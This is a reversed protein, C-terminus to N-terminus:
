GRLPGTGIGDEILLGRVLTQRERIVQGRKNREIGDALWEPEVLGCALIEDLTGQCAYGCPCEVAEVGPTVIFTDDAMARRRASPSTQAAHGKDFRRRMADIRYCMDLAGNALWAGVVYSFGLRAARPWCMAGRMLADFM